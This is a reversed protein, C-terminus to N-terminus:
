GGGEEGGPRPFRAAYRAIWERAAEESSLERGERRRVERRYREIHCIQEVMRARHAEAEEHFAVGVEWAPGRRRCWVVRGRLELEPDVLPVRILLEQGPLAPAPARFCLGGLGLDALRPRGGGAPPGGPGAVRFELPIESPHRIYRRPRRGGGPREDRRAGDRSTGNRGGAMARM